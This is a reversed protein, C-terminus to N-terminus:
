TRNVSIGLVGPKLIQSAILIPQIKGFSALVGPRKMQTQVSQDEAHGAWGHQKVHQGSLRRAPETELLKAISNHCSVSMEPPKM